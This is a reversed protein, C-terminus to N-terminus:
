GDIALVGILIIAKVKGIRREVCDIHGVRKGQGTEGIPQQAVTPIYIPQQIDQGGVVVDFDEGRGLDQHEVVLGGRDIDAILHGNDGALEAIGGLVVDM